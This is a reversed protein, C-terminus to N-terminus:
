KRRFKFEFVVLKAIQKPTLIDSLSRLFKIKSEFLQRDLDNIKNVMESYYSDNKKEGSEFNNYLSLLLSDKKDAVKKQMDLHKKRRAFFRISVDEDLDLTEIIKLRELQLLRERGLKNHMFNKPRNQASLNTLFLFSLLGITVLLFKKM